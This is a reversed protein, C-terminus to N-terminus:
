RYLDKLKSILYIWQGADYKGKIGQYILMAPGLGLKKFNQRSLNKKLFNHKNVSVDIRCKIIDSNKSKTLSSGNDSVSYLTRRDAGITNAYFGCKTTFMIDNSAKVEDFAIGHKTVLDRRIFKGWPPGYKYRLRLESKDDQVLLYDEVLKNYFRDRGAAEGTVENFSDVYFYIVDCDTDEYDGVMQVLEPTFVDDADAFILWKCEAVSLGVNRCYGAGHNETNYCIRVGKLSYNDGLGKLVDRDKTSCDDVVIVEFREIEPISALLRGLKAVSNYHPIIISAIKEQGM